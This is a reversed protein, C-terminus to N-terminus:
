RRPSRFQAGRLSVNFGALVPLSEHTAIVAPYSEIRFVVEAAHEHLLPPHLQVRVPVFPDRQEVATQAGLRRINDAPAGHRSFGRIAKTNLDGGARQGDAAAADVDVTQEGLIVALRRQLEIGHEGLLAARQRQGVDLLRIKGVDVDDSGRRRAAPRM